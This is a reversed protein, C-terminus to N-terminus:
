DPSDVLVLPQYQPCDTRAGVAGADDRFLTRRVGVDLHRASLESYWRRQQLAVRPACALCHHPDARGRARSLASGRQALVRVAASVVRIDTVRNAASNSSSHVARPVAMVM